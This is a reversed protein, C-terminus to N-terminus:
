FAYSLGVSFTQGTTYRNTTHPGQTELYDDNLINEIGIKANVPTGFPAIEVLWVFDLQDRREQYIDPLSGGPFEPQIDIGGAEVVRDVTNYLLRVTGWRYHEYEIGANVVFPAQGVLARKTNTVVIQTGNVEGDRPIKVESEIVSLNATFQVDALASAIGRLPEWRRVYPVLFEFNKRVEFEFGWLTATDANLVSDLQDSVLPLSVVEIPKKLDKYFFSVSALELPSFFWEWRLDYSTIDASVLDPNGQFTRSGFRTPYQTPTLERFEPRSVTQSYGARFNMDDLPSYILSVGPLPDLDNKITKFPQGDALSVGQAVIYSYELRAGGIIRLRDRVIPLTLMGYGGAIEQSAEFSDSPRTSERFSLPAGTGFNDPAFIAEPSQSLDIPTGTADTSFRRYDFTRDRLSYAAGTKFEADLGSWLDTFPLWTHFPFTLDAYYDQLFEDLSGYNRSGSPPKTINLTPEPEGQQLQYLVFKTDPQEQLSPSWSSRWDFDFATWHHRGELQGFGLQDVIYSQDSPFVRRGAEENFNEGEGDAVEDTGKRNFLGRAGFKHNPSLKYTSTFIAGLNTEFFSHDYVANNGLGLGFKDDAPDLFSNLVEHRRTQHKTRYSTALSVGLPGFTDGISGDVGFNPPATKDDINWNNPLSAVLARMQPGTPGRTANSPGDGFLGSLDRYDDGFGFWDATSGDYTKFSRFTTDTNYGGSLGIGYALEPPPDALQIDVLGGSFDGPLNPAYTKVISLSEIFDAPFLDLPVVRKNPDTSPLRSGNLLASSYREGLGRVVVFKDDKITVAPIRTVVEAADSDTTKSIMEAGLNDSVTPALKRKLLQTANTAASMDAVVEIVEVGTDGSAVLTASMRETKGETVVVNELLLPEYFSASIQLKYTGPPLVLSFKGDLDTREAEERDVVRIRAGIVPSASSSDLVTGVIAGKGRPM